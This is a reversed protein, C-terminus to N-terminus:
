RLDIPNGLCALFNIENFWIRDPKSRDIDLHLYDYGFEVRLPLQAAHVIALWNRVIAQRLDDALCFFDVALGQQHPSDPIGGVAQNYTPCRCFSNVLLPRGVRERLTDLHELFEASAAQFGCGCACGIEDSAFYRSRSEQSRTSEQLQM